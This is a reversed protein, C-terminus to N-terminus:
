FRSDEIAVIAHQMNEPIDNISVSIRNGDASTLKQLMNGDQDYIFTAQGSPMINVDSVSPTGDIIGKYMGSALFAIIISAAIALALVGRIVCMGARNAIRASRSSTQEIKEKLGDRGFNM